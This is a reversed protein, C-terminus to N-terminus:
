RVSVIQVFEDEGHVSVWLESPACEITFTPAHPALYAGPETSANASFHVVAAGSPAAGPDSVCLLKFSLTASTNPDSILSGVSVATTSGTTEVVALEIAM